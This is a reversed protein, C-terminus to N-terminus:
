PRSQRLPEMGEPPTLLREHPAPTTLRTPAAVLVDTSPALDLAHRLRAMFLRDIAVRLARPPPMEALGRALRLDRALARQVPEFALPGVLSAGPAPALLSPTSLEGSSALSVLVIERDGQRLQTAQYGNAAFASGEQFSYARWQVPSRLDFDLEGARLRRGDLVVDAMGADSLFVRDLCGGAHAELAAVLDLLDDARAFTPMADSIPLEGHPTTIARALIDLHRAGSPSLGALYEIGDRHTLAVVLHERAPSALLTAGFPRDTRLLARPPEASEPVAEGHLTLTTADLTLRPPAIAARRARRGERLWVVLGALTAVVLCGLAAVVPSRVGFAIVGAGAAALGVGFAILEPGRRRPPVIPERLPFTAVVAPSVARDHARSPRAPPAAETSM